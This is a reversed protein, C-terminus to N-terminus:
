RCIRMWHLSTSLSTNELGLSIMSSSAESRGMKKLRKHCQLFWTTELRSGLMRLPDWGHIIFYSSEMLIVSPWLCRPEQETENVIVLIYFVHATAKCTFAGCQVHNPARRSYTNFIPHPKKEWTTLEDDGEGDFVPSKPAISVSPKFFSSIKSQMFSHNQEKNPNTDRKQAKNENVTYKLNLTINERKQRWFSKTIM